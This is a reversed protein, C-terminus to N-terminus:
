ASVARILALIRDTLRVFNEVAQTLGRLIMYIVPSIATGRFEAVKIYLGGCLAPLVCWAALRSLVGINKHFPNYSAPIKPIFYSSLDL